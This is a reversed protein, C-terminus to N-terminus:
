FRKIEINLATYTFEIDNIIKSNNVIIQLVACKAGDNEFTPFKKMGIDQIRLLLQMCPNLM